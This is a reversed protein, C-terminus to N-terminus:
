HLALVSSATFCAIRLPHHPMMGAELISRRPFRGHPFNGDSKDDKSGNRHVDQDVAARVHVHATFLVAGFRM